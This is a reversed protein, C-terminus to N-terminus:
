CGRSLIFVASIKLYKAMERQGSAQEMGAGRTAQTQATAHNKRHLSQQRHNDRQLFGAGHTHWLVVVLM